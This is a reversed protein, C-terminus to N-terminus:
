VFTTGLYYLAVTKMHCGPSYKFRGFYKRVRWFLIVVIHSIYFYNEVARWQSQEFVTNSKAFGAKALLTKYCAYIRCCHFPDMDSRIFSPPTRKNVFMVEFNRSIVTDTGKLMVSYKYICIKIM